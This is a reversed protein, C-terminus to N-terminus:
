QGLIYINQVNSCCEYFVCPSTDTLRHENTGSLKSHVDRNWYVLWIHLGLLYQITLHKLSELSLGNAACKEYFDGNGRQLGLADNYSNSTQLHDSVCLAPARQFGMVECEHDSRGRSWILDSVASIYVCLCAGVVSASSDCRLHHM